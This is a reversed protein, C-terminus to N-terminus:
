NRFTEGALAADLRELKEIYARCMDRIAEDDGVVGISDLEKRLAQAEGRHHVTAVGGLISLAKGAIHGDLEVLDLIWNALEISSPHDPFEEAKLDDVATRVVDVQFEHQKKM